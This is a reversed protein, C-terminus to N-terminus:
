PDALAAVAEDVTRFLRVGADLKESVFVDDVQGLEHAIVLEVHERALDDHLEELMRVATMDVFAIAEADLVVARVGHETAHHKIVTRVSEANAFFLGSEIRLVSVGPVPRTDTHSTIDVFQDPAGDLRGLEAVHPKSTRYLLLMLSVVIGLILGPLTDFLLVGLMATVAAIFDPRAAKGYIQGLRRTYLGYMSRLAGIDVLEVVAAIVVAALTAEPLDEFLATLFLLTVVTFAAVALGSVQSTAGASGNVATKSLSGNVVMGSCLGSGLNAAGLGILEANADIEYHERTAYTKAAGLGEAFGVLMVAGASGALNLYDSIKVGDPLGVSPLGSDIHGVIEVGKDSLDFLKVAVVGLIVAVLSGPVVPAVKRLVLVVALSLAGVAL